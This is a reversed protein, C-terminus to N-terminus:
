GHWINPLHRPWRWPELLIVDISLSDYRGAYRSAVLEAAAIVRRLKPQSIAEGLSRGDRRLKVEVVALHGGRSALIDIEGRRTKLRREVIRYGKIILWVCAAREALRGQREAIKRRDNM